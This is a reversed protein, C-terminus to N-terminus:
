NEPYLLQASELIYIQYGQGPLMEGIMNIEFAPYFVNGLNDKAIILNNEAVLSALAIEINIPNDRLYSIINWGANLSIPTLEPMIKMGVISLTENQSMYVQYGHQVNWNGIDNIGFEPYYIQGVNNKVIVTSSKIESFVEEMAANEAEVYTSIMNWGTTLAISHLEPLTKVQLIYSFASNGSTNEAIIRYYYNTFSKLHEGADSYENNLGTYLQLYPGEADLSRFLKYNEAGAVDDWELVIKHQEILSARLNVPTELAYKFLTDFVISSHGDARHSSHLSNIVTDSEAILFVVYASGDARRSSYQTISSDAGNLIFGICNSGDARFAAKHAIVSTDADAITLRIMSAGDYYEGEFQAHALFSSAFIALVIYIFAKM